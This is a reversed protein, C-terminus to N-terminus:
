MLLEARPMHPSAYPVCLLHQLCDSICMHVQIEPSSDLSSASVHSNDVQFGRPWDSALFSLTSLAQTRPLEPILAPDSLRCLRSDERGLHVCVCVCASMM